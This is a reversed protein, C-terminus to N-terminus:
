LDKGALMRALGERFSVPSFGLEKEAKEILFGTRSPRLAPQTFSSADVKEMLTHDLKLIECTALAMEYPTMQERGSIHFIGKAKKDAVLLIGMALDAAYTPTRVQDNVVKINEGKGLKEIVWSILHNRTGGFTNGYVLVTRVIAWDLSSSIVAREAAWKSSGYYNVPGPLDEEHYPGNQGDFIFDTSVHIFFAGCKEAASILFRTANVNIDWCRVKDLECQDPATLAAGHIIIDPHFSSVLNDVDVGHTIDLTAYSFGHRVPMRFRKEGKGTALVVSDTDALEAALYQGLLGNVGTILIRSNM